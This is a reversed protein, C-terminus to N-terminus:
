IKLRCQWIPNHGNENKIFDGGDFELNHYGVVYEATPLFLNKVFTMIPNKIELGNASLFEAFKKNWAVTGFNGLIIIPCDQAAVFKNLTVFAKDKQKRSLDSWDLMISMYEKDKIKTKVFVGSNNKGFNIKGAAQQPCDSMVFSGNGNGESLFLNEPIKIKREEKIEPNLVALIDTDETAEYIELWTRPETQLSITIKENAPNVSASFFIPGSSSLVFFNLLWIVFFLFSYLFFRYNLAYFIGWFGLLYFQFRWENLYQGLSGEGFAWLSFVSLFILITKLSFKVRALKMKQEIYRM